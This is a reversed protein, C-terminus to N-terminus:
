EREDRIKGEVFQIKSVADDVDEYEYPFVIWDESKDAYFTPTYKCYTKWYVVAIDFKGVFEKLTKGSDMVDDVILIDSSSKESFENIDLMPLNLM